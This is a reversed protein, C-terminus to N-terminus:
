CLPLLLLCLRLFRQRVSKSFLESNVFYGTLAATLSGEIRLLKLAAQVNVSRSSAGEPFPVLFYQLQSMGSMTTPSNPPWPATGCRERSPCPWRSSFNM